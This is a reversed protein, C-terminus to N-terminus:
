LDFALGLVTRVVPETQPDLPEVEVGGTAPEMRVERGGVARYLGGEHWVTGRDIGFARFRETTLALDFPGPVALLAM